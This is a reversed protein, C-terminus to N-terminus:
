PEGAASLELAFCDPHHFDPKGPPHALAWYSKTGDEEEIVATTALRGSQNPLTLVVDIGDHLPVIVPQDLPLDTLGTRYGTFAYAAWATSPSFNFEQYGEGGEPRVFLEFCTTRWLGDTRVPPDTALVRLAGGTVRYALSWDAGDREITVTVAEVARPPFGPHPALRCTKLLRGRM